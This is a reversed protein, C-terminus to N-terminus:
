HAQHHKITLNNPYQANQILNHTVQWGYSMGELREPSMYQTSGIAENTMGGVQLNLTLWQQWRLHFM